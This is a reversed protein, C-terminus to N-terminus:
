HLILQGIPHTYHIRHLPTHLQPFSAPEDGRERDAKLISCYIPLSFLIGTLDAVWRELKEGGMSHFSDDDQDSSFHM